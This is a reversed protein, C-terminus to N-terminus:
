ILKNEKLINKNWKIQYGTHGFKTFPMEEAFQKGKDTLRWDKGRKEQLGLNKLLKNVESAKKGIKEGLQTANMTGIEHEASPLLKKYAEYSYGTDKEAESIAVAFAIGDKVGTTEILTKAINMHQKLARDIPKLKKILEKYNFYNNILERQINWALEDHLSKVLMLYGSQTFVIGKPAKKDFEYTLVFNTGVDNRSIIFYDVGEIFHEKNENFNRKATGEVREHVMDIDKFTVVKQGKYEKLKIQKNEIQVLKNKM